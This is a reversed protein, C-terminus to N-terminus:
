GYIKSLDLLFASSLGCFNSYFHAVCVSLSLLSVCRLLANCFLVFTEVYRKRDLSSTVDGNTAEFSMTTRTRARTNIYRKFTRTAKKHRVTTKFRRKVTM